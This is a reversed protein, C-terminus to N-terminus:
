HNKQMAERKVDVTSAMPCGRLVEFENFPDSVCETTTLNPKSPKQEDWRLKYLSYPMKSFVSREMDDAGGSMGMGMGLGILKVRLGDSYAHTM